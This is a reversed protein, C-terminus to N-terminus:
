SRCAKQRIPPLGYTADPQGMRASTTVHSKPLGIIKFHWETESPKDEEWKRKKNAENATAPVAATTTATTTTTITTTKEGVAVRLYVDLALQLEEDSCGNACEWGCLNPAQVARVDVLAYLLNM